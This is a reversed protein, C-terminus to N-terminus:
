EINKQHQLNDDFAMMIGQLQYVFRMPQIWLKHDCVYLFFQCIM